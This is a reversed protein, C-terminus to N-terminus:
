GGDDSAVVLYRFSVPEELVDSFEPVQGAFPVSYGSDTFISVTVRGYDGYTADFRIRIYYRVGLDLEIAGGAGGDPHLFTLAIKRGYGWSTMNILTADLALYDEHDTYRLQDNTKGTSNVLTWLCLGGHSLDVDAGDTICFSFKHEFSGAFYGAGFDRTVAVAELAFLGTFAISNQSVSLRNNATDTESYDAAFDETGTSLPQSNIRSFGSVAKLGGGPAYRLNVLERYNQPGIRSADVSAAWAGNFDIEM